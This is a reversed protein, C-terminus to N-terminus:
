RGRFVPKRKEMFASRGERYDESDFCKNVLAGISSAAETDSYREFERVAAKVAAITLPANQAIRQAYERVANELDDDRVLQNVLGLRLAEQGDLFRASFLMDKATSPGVLRALAAVGAYEYGLGLRAAPIAFSSGMSAIRVDANLALALGGGVCFGQIMALLPKGLSQLALHGRSAVEAYAQKQQANARNNEFESIDAGSAFAKGGAGHLVVARVDDSASFQTAAIAMAGWMDLSIANRREPNNLTIWGVGNDIRALVKSTGLDILNGSV